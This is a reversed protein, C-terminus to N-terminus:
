PKPRAVGSYMASLAKPGSIQFRAPGELDFGAHTLIADIRRNLNCGGAIRKQLGNFRNQRAAVRPDDSLGHELYFMAGGPRLIRRVESLAADLDPITCLTWTTLVNDVSDDELPVSQGDLGVLEIPIPSNEIAGSAMSRAVLSPEVALVQSVEPPYIGVNPGGGFGLEMVQGSLGEMARSRLPRMAKNGLLLHVVRPLIQDNYFGVPVDHGM